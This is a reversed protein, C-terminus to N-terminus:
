ISLWLSQNSPSLFQIQLFTLTSPYIAVFIDYRFIFFFCAKLLFLNDCKQSEHSLSPTLLENSIALTPKYSWITQTLVCYQSIQFLTLKCKPYMEIGRELTVTLVWPELERRQRKVITSIQINGTLWLCLKMCNGWIKVNTKHLKQLNWINAWANM